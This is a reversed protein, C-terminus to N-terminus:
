YDLIQIKKLSLSRPKRPKLYGYISEMDSIDLRSASRGTRGIATPHPPAPHPQGNAQTNNTAPGTGLTPSMTPGGAGRSKGGAVGTAGAGGGSTAATSASTATAKAPAAAVVAAAISKNKSNFYNKNKLMDDNDQKANTLQRKHQSNSNSSNNNNSNSNSTTANDYRQRKDANQAQEQRQKGGRWSPAPLQPQKRCSQGRKPGAGSRRGRDTSDISGRVRDYINAASPAAKVAIRKRGGYMYLSGEENPQEFFSETSQSKTRLVAPTQLQRLHSRDVYMDVTEPGKRRRINETLGLDDDLDFAMDFDDYEYCDDYRENATPELELVSVDSESCWKVVGPRIEPEVQSGSLRQHRRLQQQSLSRQPRPPPVAGCLPALAYCSVCNCSSSDEPASRRSSLRRKVQRAVPDELNDYYPQQPVHQQPAPHQQQLHAHRECHHGHRHHRHHQHAHPYSHPHPHPQHSRAKNATSQTKTTATTATATTATLDTPLSQPQQQQQHQLQQHMQMQLAHSKHPQHATTPGGQKYIGIGSEYSRTQWIQHHQQQQQQERQHGAHHHQAAHAAAAAAMLQQQQQQIHHPHMGGLHNHIMSTKKQSLTSIGGGNGINNANGDRQDKAVQGSIPKGSKVFNPVRARLGCYYPDDYKKNDKGKDSKGRSLKIRTELDIDDYDPKPILDHSYINDRPPLKPPKESRKHALQQTQLLLQERTAAVHGAGNGNLHKGLQQQQQPHLQAQHGSGFGSSGSSGNSGNGAVSYPDEDPIPIRPRNKIDVIPRQVPPLKSKLMDMAVVNVILVWIPCELVDNESKVFAVSSLCQTELRRRDPYARRLERNVNSQFKKMDFLKVIKESELAQNPLKLIEAGISTEENPSSATSKVYVNSKAYRRILINGADDMKIKVGQGIVRKMEDTKQDRMPNDFGCLGIRMGDFGDDSGNITLVPARAYAKAVRRNREFVIVKAWIEDDIQTWKDLVEQIHEKYLKDKQYWIDEEEEQQTFTQDLNLDDRSRSLIKRRSVM